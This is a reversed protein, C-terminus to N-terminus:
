RRAPETTGTANPEAPVPYAPNAPSVRNTPNGGSETPARSSVAQGSSDPATGGIWSMLAVMVVALLALSGVLVMFVGRGTRGQRARQDPVIKAM